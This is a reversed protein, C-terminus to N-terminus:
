FHTYAALFCVCKVHLSYASCENSYVAALTRKIRSDLSFPCYALHALHAPTACRLFKCPRQKGATAFTYEGSITGGFFASPLETFETPEPTAVATVSPPPTPPGDAQQAYAVPVAGFILLLLGVHQM